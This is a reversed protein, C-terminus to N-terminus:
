QQQRVTVHGKCISQSTDATVGFHRGGWYAMKTVDFELM